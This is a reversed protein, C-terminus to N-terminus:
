LMICTVQLIKSSTDLEALVAVFGQVLEIIRDVAYEASSAPMSSIDLSPNLEISMGTMSHSAEDLHATRLVAHSFKAAARASLRRRAVSSM